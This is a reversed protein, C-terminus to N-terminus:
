DGASAEEVQPPQETKPKQLRKPLPPLIQRLYPFEFGGL